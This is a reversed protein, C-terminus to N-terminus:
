RKGEENNLDEGFACKSCLDPEVWYCGGECAHDWTCGCVRCKQEKNVEDFLDTILDDLIVWGEEISRDVLTRPARSEKFRQINEPTPDVGADKFAQELDADCWRITAFVDGAPNDKQDQHQGSNKLEDVEIYKTFADSNESTFGPGDEAWNVLANLINKRIESINTVPYSFRLTVLVKTEYGPSRDIPILSMQLQENKVTQDSEM